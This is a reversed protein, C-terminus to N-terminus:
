REGYRDIDREREIERERYIYIYVYYLMHGALLGGGGHEGPRRAGAAGSKYYPMSCHTIAYQLIAYCLM